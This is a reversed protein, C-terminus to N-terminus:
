SLFDDNVYMNILVPINRLIFRPQTGVSHTIKVVLSMEIDSTRVVNSNTVIGTTM